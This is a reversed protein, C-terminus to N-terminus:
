AKQRPPMIRATRFVITGSSPKKYDKVAPEVIANAFAQYPNM